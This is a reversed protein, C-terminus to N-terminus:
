RRRHARKLALAGTGLLIMGMLALAQAIYNSGDETGGTMPIGVHDAPTAGTVVAPGGFRDAFRSIIGASLADAMGLIHEHVNDYAAIDTAYDGKLHAVAEGLTLDLHGKMMAKLAGLPWAEPNASNLFAAIDDGNRYWAASTTQVGAEDNNAAATLVDVAGTIHEKLLTTLQEGAADGYYPKILNGIDVQDQLLRNLAAEKDPLNSVASVILLRTWIIHDEWAERMDNRLTVQSDAPGASFRDPFQAIIGASLADAMGLIHQAIQDYAAVDAAWDGKLRALAEELTLDLHMRMTEAIQDRSWAGPNAATLFAAIDDANRYWADRATEIRANDGAKAAVLLDAAGTIHERLLGALKNGADEGYFPKIANGIDDQNRLLREAVLDKDPLDALASVIYLRTWGIHDEWLKRMANRFDLASVQSPQAVGVPAHATSAAAPLAALNLLGSMVLALALALATYASKHHPVKM